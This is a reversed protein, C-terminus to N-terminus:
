NTSELREEVIEMTTRYFLLFSFAKAKSGVSHIGPLPIEIVNQHGGLTYRFLFKTEPELKGPIKKFLVM